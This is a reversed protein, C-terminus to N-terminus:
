EQNVLEMKDIDDIKVVEYNVFISADEFFEDNYTGVIQRGSKLTVKVVKDFMEDYYTEHFAWSKPFLNENDSIMALGYFFGCDWVNYTEDCLYSCPHKPRFIMGDVEYLINETSYLEIDQPCVVPFVKEFIEKQGVPMGKICGSMYFGLQFHGLKSRSVDIRSIDVGLKNFFERQVETLKSNVINNLEKDSSMDETQYYKRTKEIDVEIKWPYFEFIM